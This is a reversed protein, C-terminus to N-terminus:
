VGATGAILGPLGGLGDLVRWAGAAALGAKDFNGTTVGVGRVGAARAAKMDIDTDGVYIGREPAVGLKEFGEIICDPEPKARKVDELGIVVDLLGALGVQEVVRVAFRRNSAVGVKRGSARLIEVTGVADPFLKIRSHEDGRFNARYYDLWEQKFDGWFFRWSDEIPLGISAKVEAYPIERFGFKKATLNTCYHIAYSSDALTMDFDFLVAECKKRTVM